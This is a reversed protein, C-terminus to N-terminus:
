GAIYAIVDKMAIQMTEETEIMLWLSLRAFDKEDLEIDVRNFCKLVEDKSLM